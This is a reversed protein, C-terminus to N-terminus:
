HQGLDQAFINQNLLQLHFYLFRYKVLKIDFTLL